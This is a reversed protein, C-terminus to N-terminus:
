ERLTLDNIVQWMEIGVYIIYIELQNFMFNQNIRSIQSVNVDAVCTFSSLSIM